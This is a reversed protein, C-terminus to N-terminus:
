LVKVKGQFEKNPTKTILNIAGAFTARGFYASQPGKVVEIREANETSGIDGGLIPAGDIFVTVAQKTQVDTNVQMGRILLRRNSRDNRGVTPTGYFFGPTYNVIDNLEKIQKAGIDDATFATVTLPVELLSENRKRATVTIEEITVKSEQGWAKNELGATSLTAAISTTAVLATKLWKTM